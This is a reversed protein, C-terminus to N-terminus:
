QAVNTIRAAEDTAIAATSRTVRLGTRAGLDSQGAIATMATSSTAAVTRKATEVVFPRILTTEPEDRQDRHEDREECPDHEV